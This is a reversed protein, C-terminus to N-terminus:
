DGTMNAGSFDAVSVFRRTMSKQRTAEQTHQAQQGEDLLGRVGSNGM